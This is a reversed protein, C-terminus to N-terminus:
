LLAIAENKNMKSIKNTGKFWLYKYSLTLIKDLRLKIKFM